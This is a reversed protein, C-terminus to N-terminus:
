ILSLHTRVKAVQQEHARQADAIQARLSDAVNNSDALQQQVHKLQETYENTGAQTTEIYATHVRLQEERAREANALAVQTSQLEVSLQL